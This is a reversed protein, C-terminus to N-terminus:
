RGFADEVGDLKWIIEMGDLGFARKAVRGFERRVDHQIKMFFLSSPPVNKEFPHEHM